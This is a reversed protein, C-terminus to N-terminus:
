SLLIDEVVWSSLLKRKLHKTQSSINKNYSFLQRTHVEKLPTFTKQLSSANTQQLESMDKAFLYRNESLLTTLHQTQKQNIQGIPIEKGEELHIIPNKNGEKGKVATNVIHDNAIVSCDQCKDGQDLNQCLCPGPGSSNIGTPYKM